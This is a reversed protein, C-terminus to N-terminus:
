WPAGSVGLTLPAPSKGELQHLQKFVESLFRETRAGIGPVRSERNGAINVVKVWPNQRFFEVVASPRHGQIIVLSSKGHSGLTGLTLKASASDTTGFWLTADAAQVNAIARPSYGPEQCEVLGYEALWPAAVETRGNSSEILWGLSAFGGTPIGAAKAARLGAQDSGTQGGSIVREIM